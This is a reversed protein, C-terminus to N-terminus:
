GMRMTEHTMAWFTRSRMQEPFNLSEQDPNEAHKSDEGVEQQLRWAKTIPCKNCCYQRAFDRSPNRLSCSLTFPTFMWVTILYSTPQSDLSVKETDIVCDRQLSYCSDWTPGQFIGPGWLSNCQLGHGRKTRVAEVILLGCPSAALVFLLWPGWHKHASEGLWAGSLDPTCVCCLGSGERM